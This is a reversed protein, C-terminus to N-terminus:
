HPYKQYLYLTLFLFECWAAMATVTPVVTTGCCGDNGDAEIHRVIFYLAIAGNIIPYNLM